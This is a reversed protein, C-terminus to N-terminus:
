PKSIYNWQFSDGENKQTKLMEIKGLLGSEERM